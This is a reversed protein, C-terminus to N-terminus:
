SFLDTRYVFGLCLLIDNNECCVACWVCLWLQYYSVTVTLMVFTCCVILSYLGLLCNTLTLLTLRSHQIVVVQVVQWVATLGCWSLSCVVPANVVCSSAVVTFWGHNVTTAAAVASNRETSQANNTRCCPPCSASRFGSWNDGFPEQKCLRALKFFVWFLLCTLGIGFSHSHTHLHMCEWLSKEDM